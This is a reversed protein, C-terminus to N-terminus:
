PSYRLARTPEGRQHGRGKDLQHWDRLVAISAAPEGDGFKAPRQGEYDAANIPDMSSLKANAAAEMGVLFEALEADADSSGDAQAEEVTLALLADDEIGVRLAQEDSGAEPSLHVINGRVTDEHDQGIGFVVVGIVDAVAFLEESM